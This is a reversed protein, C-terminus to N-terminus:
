SKTAIQVYSPYASWATLQALILLFFFLSAALSFCGGVATGHKSNGSYLSMGSAGM